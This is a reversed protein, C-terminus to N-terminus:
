TKIQTFLAVAFHDLSRPELQRRVDIPTVPPHFLAVPGGQFRARGISWIAEIMHCSYSISVWLEVPDYWRTELSWTRAGNDWRSRTLALLSPGSHGFSSGTNNDSFLVMAESPKAGFGHKAANYHNRSDILTATLHRLWQTVRDVALDWAAEDGPFSELRETNGFMVDAVVPAITSNIVSRGFHNDLLDWFEAFGLDAMAMWACRRRGEHALFLRLTAEAAHSLLVVSEATIFRGLEDPPITSEILEHEGVHFQDGAVDLGARLRPGLEPHSAAAVLLNNLRHEFYHAPSTGYFNENIQTIARAIKAGEPNYVDEAM